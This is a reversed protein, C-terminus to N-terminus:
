IQLLRMQALCKGFLTSLKVQRVRCDIVNLVFHILLITLLSLYSALQLALQCALRRFDCLDVVLKLFLIRLKLLKDVLIAVLHVTIAGDNM